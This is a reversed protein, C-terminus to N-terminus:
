DAKEKSDGPTWNPAARKLEKQSVRNVKRCHPCPVNYHHLDEETVIELAAHVAEKGLAYPKHCKTCRIQM